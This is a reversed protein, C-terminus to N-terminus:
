GPLPLGGGETPPPGPNPPVGPEGAVPPPGGADTQGAAGSVAGEPSQGAGMGGNMQQQQMAMAKEEQIAAIEQTLDFKEEDTRLVSIYKSMLEQGASIIKAGLQSLAPTAQPSAILPGAVQATFNAFGQWAQLAMLIESAEHEKALAEDAATLSIRFNDLPDVGDEVMPYRFPIEIIAKTKPNKVPITEGFPQYQRATKLYLRIVRVFSDNLTRLFMLPQQLGQQLIQSVTAAPTRGPVAEGQEYSSVNSVRQAQGEIYQMLPLLSMHEAGARFVGFDEDAKGPIFEGPYLRRAKAFYDASNGDKDYWYSFNNAHFANKVEAQASHTAVRQHWKLRGVTCSGSDSHPDKIQWFPTLLRQQHDYPNKYIVCVKRAGHHYDALFDFKRLEVEGTEPNKAKVTWYFQVEKLDIKNSPTEYPKQQTATRVQKEHEPRVDSTMKALKDWDSEEVLPYQGSVCRSYFTDPDVPTNEAVWPSLDLDDEDAPKLVNFQSVTYMKVVEKSVPIMVEEKNEFDIVVGDVKPRYVARTARDACVKVYAKNAVVVDTLVEQWIRSFDLRERLKFELGTEFRQAVDEADVPTPTPVIQMSTVGTMPDMVPMELPVIVTQTEPFQPEVSAIPKPRLTFNYAWSIQQDASIAALPIPLVEEDGTEYTTRAAKYTKINEAAEQFIRKNDEIATDIESSLYANIKKLETESPIFRTYGKEDFEFSGSDGDLELLRKADNTTESLIIPRSLREV